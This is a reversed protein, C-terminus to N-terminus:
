LLCNNNTGAPASMCNQGQLEWRVQLIIERIEPAHANSQLAAAQVRGQLTKTYGSDM